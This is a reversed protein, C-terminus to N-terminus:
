NSVCMNNLILTRKHLHVRDPDAFQMLMIQNRQKENCVKNDSLM